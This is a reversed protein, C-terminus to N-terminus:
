TSNELLEVEVVLVVLDMIKAEEYESTKNIKMTESRERLLPEQKATLSFKQRLIKLQGSNKNSQIFWM